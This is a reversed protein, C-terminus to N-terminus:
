LGMAKWTKAGVIGDAVLHHTRQYRIAAARTKPGFVGDARVGLFRQVLRVYLGRSGYHVTPKAARASGQASGQTSGQAAKQPATVTPTAPVPVSSTGAVESPATPGGVPIPALTVKTGAPVAAGPDAPVAPTSAHLQAVTIGLSAALLAATITHKVVTTSGTPRYGVFARFADMDLDPDIKRGVPKCVEKHGRINALSFGYERALELCLLRLAELLGASWVEGTGDNECEIGITRANGWAPDLVAGAHWAEGAAVVYIVGSRSIGFHALPGALDERGAALVHASPMDQDHQKAATHHVVVGRPAGALGGHGRTAWGNLEVVQHGTRRAVDALATLYM